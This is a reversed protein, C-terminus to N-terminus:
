LSAASRHPESPQRLVDLYERAAALDDAEVALLALERRVAAADEACGAREFLTLSGRLSARAEEIRDLLCQAAGRVRATLAQEEDPAAPADREPFLRLAGEALLRMGDPRPRGQLAGALAALARAAGRVHHAAAYMALAAAYHPHADTWRGARAELDGLAWQIDALRRKHQETEYVAIAQGAHVMAADFAGDEAAAAAHEIHWAGARRGDTLPEAIGLAAQFAEGAEATRDLRELAIGLYYHLTAAASPANGPSPLLQLAAQFTWAASAPDGSVLKSRGLCTHARVLTERDGSHALVRLVREARRWARLDHGLRQDVCALALEIRALLVEDGDPVAADHARTLWEAAKAFSEAHLYALGVMLFAEPERDETAGDLFYSLPRNLRRALLKLTTLRPTRHGRELESIYSKTFDRGALQEQTLRQELRAARIKQGLTVVAAGFGRDDV